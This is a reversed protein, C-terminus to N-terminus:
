SKQSRLRELIATPLDAWQHDRQYALFCNQVSVCHDDQFAAAALLCESPSATLIRLGIVIPSGHVARHLYITELERVNLTTSVDYLPAGPELWTRRWAGRAESYYGLLAVNNVIGQHDIDSERTPVPCAFPYWGLERRQPDRVQM